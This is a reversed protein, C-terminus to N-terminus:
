GFHFSSAVLTGIQSVSQATYPAVGSGAEAARPWRLQYRVVPWEGGGLCPLSAAANADADAVFAVTCDKRAAINGAHIKGIRGAGIIGFKM